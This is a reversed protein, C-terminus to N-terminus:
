LWGVKRFVVVFVGMIIFQSAVVTPYAWWIRLEPMFDFNMGFHSAILTPLMLIVTVATLRKVADSLRVIRKNLEATAEMEHEQRLEKLVSQRRRARGQLSLSEAILVNYDFSIYRTEVEKYCSEQLSLLLDHFEELRDNLREFEQALDRYEKLDFNDELKKIVRIHAELRQKYSGLVKNLIIFCLITSRGYPKDFLTKFANAAELSVPSKSFVFASYETLFLLNDPEGGNADRINLILYKDSPGLFDMNVNLISTFDLGSGMEVKVAESFSALNNFVQFRGKQIPTESAAERGVGDPILESM